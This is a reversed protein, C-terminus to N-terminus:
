SIEEIDVYDDSEKKIGELVSFVFGKFKYFDINGTPDEVRFVIGERVHKDDLTSSGVTLNEAIERMKGIEGQFLHTELEPVYKLNLERCRKKVQPWSYEVTEGDEDVKTIRYVYLACEEPNTGYTYTMTDGYQKKVAKDKMKNVDHSNMITQGTTTYGVLEYYIIEGKHLLGRLGETSNFRFQESGYYGNVAEPDALIVNRTGLMHEYSKSVGPKIGFLRHRIKRKNPKENIVYGFRGSTGHLKETIYIISDQPFNEVHRLQETEVHKAFYKNLKQQKNNNNGQAKLTAPTFYKNCIPIGLFENFVDGEKVNWVISEAQNAAFDLYSIPCWFGDSKEGRFSQARVRRNKGFFGGKKEGTDPDTYGILDHAACFEESLQGDSGFFIGLDGDQTDKGVVVQYGHADGLVLNDANPHPRTHIKCVIANYM